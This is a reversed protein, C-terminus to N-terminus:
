NDQYVKFGDTWTGDALQWKQGLIRVEISKEVTTGDPATNLKFDFTKKCNATKSQGSKKVVISGKLNGIGIRLPLSISHRKQYDFTDKNVNHVKLVDENWKDPEEKSKQLEGDKELTVEYDDFFGKLAVNLYKGDGAVWTGINEAFINPDSTGAFNWATNANGSLEQSDVFKDTISMTIRGAMVYYTAKAENGVWDEATIDYKLIGFSDEDDNDHLSMIDDNLSISTNNELVTFESTETKGSDINTRKVTVKSLEKDDTVTVPYMEKTETSNGRRIVEIYQDNAEDNSITPPEIDNNELVIWNDETVNKNTEKTYLGLLGEMTADIPSTALKIGYDTTKGEDIEKQATKTKTLEGDAYTMKAIKRGGEVESAETLAVTVNSMKKYSPYNYTYTAGKGLYVVKGIGLVADPELTPFSEEGSTSDGIVLADESSVNNHIPGQVTGGKLHVTGSNILFMSDLAKERTVGTPYTPSFAIKGDEMVTSANDNNYQIFMNITPTSNEAKKIEAKGINNLQSITGSEITATGENNLGAKIQPTSLVNNNKDALDTVLLKAGEGVDVGKEEVGGSITMDAAKDDTAGNDIKTKITPNYGISMEGNNKVAGSVVANGGIAANAGVKNTINGTVKPKQETSLNGETGGIALTGSNTINGSFTMSTQDYDYDDDIEGRIDIPVLLLATGTENNTINADIKGESLVTNDNTDKNLVILNGSNKIAGAWRTYCGSTQNYIKIEAGENNNTTTTTVNGNKNEVTKSNTLTNITTTGGSIDYKGSNTFGTDVTVTATGSNFNGQNTVSYLEVTGNNANLTGKGAIYFAKKTSIKANPSTMTLEGAASKGINVSGTITPNGGTMDLGGKFGNSANDSSNVNVTGSINSYGDTMDLSSYSNINVTSSITNYTLAGNGKMVCKSNNALTFTNSVIKGGALYIKSANTSITGAIVSNMENGSGFAQIVSNPEATILCNTDIKTSKLKDTPADLIIGEQYIYYDAKQAGSLSYKGQKYITEGTIKNDSYYPDDTNSINTDLLVANKLRISGGNNKIGGTVTLKTDADKGIHVVGQNILKGDLTNNNLKLIQMCAGVRNAGTNITENLNNQINGKIIVNEDILTYAEYVKKTTPNVDTAINQIACMTAKSGDVTGGLFGAYVGGSNAKVIVCRSLTGDGSGITGGTQQFGSGHEILISCYGKPTNSGSMISSNVNGGTMSVSAGNVAQIDSCYGGQGGYYGANTEFDLTGNRADVHVNGVNKTGTGDKVYRVKLKFNKYTEGWDDNSDNLERARAYINGSITAEGGSIIANNANIDVDANRTFINGGYYAEGNSVTITNSGSMKLSADRVFINGGSNSATTDGSVSGTGGTFVNESYSYKYSSNAKGIPTYTDSGTSDTWTKAQVIKGGTITGGTINANAGNIIGVNGGRNFGYNNVIQGGNMTFTASGGNVDNHVRSAHVGGGSFPTKCNYILGGNMIFTASKDTHPLVAVGGGPIRTVGGETSLRNSRNNHLVTGKEMTYTGNIVTILSSSNGKNGGSKTPDWESRGTFRIGQTSFTCTTTTTGVYLGAGYGLGTSDQAQSGSPEWYLGDAVADFSGTHVDSYSTTEYTLTLTYTSGSTQYSEIGYLHHEGVINICGSLGFWGNIAVYKYSTDTNTLMTSLAETATNKDAFIGQGGSENADWAKYWTSRDSSCFIMTQTPTVAAAKSITNGNISIGIFLAVLCLSILLKKSLCSVKNM